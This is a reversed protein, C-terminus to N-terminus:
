TGRSRRTGSRRRPTATRSAASSCRRRRGRVILPHLHTPALAAMGDRWGQRIGLACPLACPPALARVQTEKRESASFRRYVTQVMGGWYGEATSFHLLEGKNAGAAQPHVDALYGACVAHVDKDCAHEEPLDDWVEGWKASLEPDADKIWALFADGVASHYDKAQRWNVSDGEGAVRRVPAHPNASAAKRPSRGTMAPCGPCSGESSARSRGPFKRIAIIQRPIPM